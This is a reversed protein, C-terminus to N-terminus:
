TGSKSGIRLWMESRVLKEVILKINDEMKVKETKWLLKRGYPKEVL